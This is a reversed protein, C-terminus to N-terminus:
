DDLYPPLSVARIRLHAAVVNVLQMFIYPSLVNRVTLGHVSIGSPRLRVPSIEQINSADSCSSICGDSRHLCGLRQDKDITKSFQSDEDQFSTQKHVSKTALSRNSTTVKREKETDPIPPLLFRSNGSELGKGSGTEQSARRNRRAIVPLFILETKDSCGIISSNVQYLDQVRKPRYFPCMQQRDIRGMTGCFPGVTRGSSHRPTTLSATSLAPCWCKTSSSAQKSSPFQKQNGSRKAYEKKNSSYSQTQNKPRYSQTQQPRSFKTPQKPRKFVPPTPDAVKQLQQMSSAVSSTALFRQQPAEFNCKAVERIKNGFLTISNIPANRLEHNSNDLLIKSTALVADRRAQFIEMALMMSMATAHKISKAVAELRSPAPVFMTQQQMCLYAASSFLDAHSNIAILKHARREWIEINRMPITCKGKIYLDLVSADSELPPINDTPFYQSQSKYFKTLTLSSVLNQSWAWDRGCKEMDIKDQLFRATNEVFKSQPM